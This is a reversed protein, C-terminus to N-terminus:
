LTKPNKFIIRMRKWRNEDCNNVVTHKPFQFTKKIECTIIGFYLEQSLSKKTHTGVPLCTWTLQAQSSCLVPVPVSVSVSVPGPECCDGPQQRIADEEMQNANKM